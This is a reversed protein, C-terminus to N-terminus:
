EYHGCIIIAGTTETLDRLTTEVLEQTLLQGTPAMLYIPLDKGINTRIERLALTLPEITIITGNDGGYPADDVRRTNRVSWDTLNYLTYRFLGKEQARKMISQEMYPRISECFMSIIHIDVM